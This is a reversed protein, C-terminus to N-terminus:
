FEYAGIDPESDRAKGDLDAPVSFNVNAKNIAPSGANLKFDSTSIQKFLPDTNFLLDNGGFATKSRIISSRFIAFDPLVTTNIDLGIETQNPGWIISNFFAYGIPFTRTVQNNDNRLQNNFILHPDRRGGGAYFTCHRFTYYGGWYGLVTNAGCNAVVCNEM